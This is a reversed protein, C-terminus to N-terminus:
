EPQARVTRSGGAGGALFGGAGDGAPLPRELPRGAFGSQRNARQSRQCPRRPHRPLGARARVIRRDVGVGGAHLGAGYSGVGSRGGRFPVHAAEARGWVALLLGAAGGVVALLLSETLLQRILRLRSAGLALRVTIEKSRAAARAMLLSAVNGCAIVAVVGSVILLLLSADTIQRRNSPPIAADTVSTLSVRRGQNDKPFRQALDQAISALDGEAQAMGVGPKLRGVMFFLLARRQNVLGPAPYVQPYMMLPLWIETATLTDIGDFGRPAVGVISYAQGNLGVTRSTVNPDGAYERQWFRYSIVAVPYAGPSADEEPLFSRGVVPTVGLTSFYNATAIQGMVLRPEAGGTLNLGVSSYLMLSSFAQTHSRYEQYNPFSSGWNGPNRADLTYVEVLRGPDAVPLPRMLVAHVLTFVTTNAGIGLALSFVAVATFSRNKALARLGYRLDELLGNM